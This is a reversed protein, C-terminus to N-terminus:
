KVRSLLISERALLADDQSLLKQLDDTKTTLIINGGTGNVFRLPTKGGSSMREVSTKDLFTLVLSDTDLKCRVVFHGSVRLPDYPADLRIVNEPTIDLYVHEGLKVAVFTYRLKDASIRAANTCTVKYAGESAVQIECFIEPTPRTQEADDTNTDVSTAGSSFARYSCRRL